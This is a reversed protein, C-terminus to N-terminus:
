SSRSLMAICSERDDWLEEPTRGIQPNRRLWGEIYHKHIMPKWDAVQQPEMRQERVIKAAIRKMPDSSDTFDYREGQFRLYTHCEPIADYPKDKFFDALVGHTEPSMLFIGAILEIDTRGQEEALAALLAHKGSCAGKEEQLVLSFNGRDSTRGYPLKKIFDCAQSFTAVGKERFMKGYPLRGNLPFDPLM